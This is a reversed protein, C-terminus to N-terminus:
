RLSTFIWSLSFCRPFNSPRQYAVWNGRSQIIFKTWTWYYGYSVAILGFDTSEKAIHIRFFIM